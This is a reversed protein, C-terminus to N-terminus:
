TLGGLTTLCSLQLLTPLLVCLTSPYGTYVMRPPLTHEVNATPTFEFTTNGNGSASITATINTGAPGM